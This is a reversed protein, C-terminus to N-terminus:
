AGGRGALIDGAVAEAVGAASVGHAWPGCPLPGEREAAPQAPTARPSAPASLQQAGGRSEGGGSSCAESGGGSSGGSGGSSGGSGGSSGSGADSGGARPGAEAEAAGVGQLAARARAPGDRPAQARWYDLLPAVQRSPPHAAAPADGRM